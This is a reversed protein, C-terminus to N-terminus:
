LFIYNCVVSILYLVVYAAVALASSTGGTAVIAVPNAQGRLKLIRKKALRYYIYNGFAGFFIRILINIFLLLYMVLIWRRFADSASLQELRVTLEANTMTPSFGIYGYLFFASIITRVVEILLILVGAVRQKRYWLWYPTLLFAAWNWSFSSQKESMKHFRPVYYQSNQGVFYRAEKATVGDIDTDDPINFDPSPAHFPRYEGYGGFPPYPPEEPQEAKATSNWEEAQLDKGCHSCFEAFVSNEHGCHPCRKQTESSEASHTDGVKEKTWQQPTGHSEEFHCHGEQKWCDRHHPAGCAPCVVVDDSKEFSKECVPCSYGQYFFM